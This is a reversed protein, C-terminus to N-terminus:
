SNTKIQTGCDNIKSTYIQYNIELNSYIKGFTDAVALAKKRDSCIAFVSPGSGSISCGLAGQNLAGKKLEDFEPILMSRVPEVISDELSKSILDYNGSALGSVLGALNGWQKVAVEMPILKRLIKKSDSTKVEIKPHIVVVVLDQPYALSVIDLPDYSRILTFGGLLSPAVNDAHAKGSAIAEGMMAFRVLDIKSVPAGLLENAGYVAGAASSASSGLGSGPAINKHIIIHFGQDSQLHDLLAQVAVGAVNLKPDTPLDSDPMEITIGSKNTVVMEIEDGINELALGLVDFGPGVNAVTAPAFVKVSNGM